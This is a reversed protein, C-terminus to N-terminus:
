AVTAADYYSLDLYSEPTGLTAGSTAYKERLALVVRIGDRSVPLGPKLIGQPSQLEAAARRAANETLDLHPLHRVLMNALATANAPSLVWDLAKLMARIFGHINGRHEAAWGRDATFVGGQYNDWPDPEGRLRVFGAEEALAAHAKGLLGAACAGNRVAEWRANINGVSVLEYDAMGLGYDELLQRLMFSFGTNVADVAIRQGKLAAFDPFEPRAILPRPDTACGLFVILDAPNKPTAAGQGANYAIVNDIATMAMDFDGDILGVMQAVSGAANECHVALGEDAFFGLEQAAQIPVTEAGMFACISIEFPNV